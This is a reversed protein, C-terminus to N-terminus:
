FGGFSYFTNSLAGSAGEEKFAIISCDWNANSGLTGTAQGTFGASTIRYWATSNGPSDSGDKAVGNIQQATPVQGSFDGYFAVVVGAATTTINGSTLATGTIGNDSNHNSGDKVSAGGGGPRFQYVVWEIFSPAGGTITLSPTYSSDASSNLLYGVAVFPEAGALTNAYRDEADFTLANSGGESVAESTGRTGEYKITAVLLDRALVNLSGSAPGVDAGTVSAIKTYAM